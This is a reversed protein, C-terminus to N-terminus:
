AVQAAPAPTDMVAFTGAFASATMLVAAAISFFTRIM